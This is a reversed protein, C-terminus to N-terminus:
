TRGIFRRIASGVQGSYIVETDEKECANFIM